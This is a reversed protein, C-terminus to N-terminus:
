RPRTMIEAYEIDTRKFNEILFKDAIAIEEEGEASGTFESIFLNEKEVRFSQLGDLDGDEYYFVINAEPHKLLFEAFDKAKM